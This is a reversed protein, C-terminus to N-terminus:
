NSLTKLMEEVNTLIKTKNTINDIYMLIFGNYDEDIIINNEILEVKNVNTFSTLFEKWVTESVYPRFNVGLGKNRLICNKIKFFTHAEYNVNYFLFIERKM